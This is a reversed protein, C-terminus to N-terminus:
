WRFWDKLKMLPRWLSPRQQWIIRLPRHRGIMIRNKIPNYKYTQIVRESRDSAVFFYMYSMKEEEIGPIESLQCRFSFSFVLKNKPELISGQFQGLHQTLTPGRLVYCRLTVDLLQVAAEGTNEITLEGNALDNSHAVSFTLKPRVQELLQAENVKLMKRTVYAYWGTILVLVVNIVVLIINSNGGQQVWHWFRGWEYAM